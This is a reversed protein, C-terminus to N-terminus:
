RCRSALSKGVPETTAGLDCLSVFSVLIPPPEKDNPVDDTAPAALRRSAPQTSAGAGQGAARGSGGAASADGVAVTGDVAAPGDVAACNGFNTARAAVMRRGQWELVSPNIGHLSNVPRGARGAAAFPPGALAVQLPSDLVAVPLLEAGPLM